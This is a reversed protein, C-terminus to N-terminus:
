GQRNRRLRGAVAVHREDAIQVPVDAPQRLHAVIADLEADTIRQRHVGGLEFRHQRSVAQDARHDARPLRPDLLPQREGAGVGRYALGRDLANPLVDRQRGRMFVITM